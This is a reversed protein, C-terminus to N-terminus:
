KGTNEKPCAGITSRALKADDRSKYPGDVFWINSGDVVPNSTVIECGKTAHSGVVWFLGDALAGTALAVLLGLALISRIM